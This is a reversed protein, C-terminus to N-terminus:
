IIVDLYFLCHARAHKIRVMLLEYTSDKVHLQEGHASSLSGASSFTLAASLIDKRTRLFFAM